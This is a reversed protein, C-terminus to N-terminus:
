LVSTMAGTLGRVLESGNAYALSFSSSAMWDRLCAAPLFFVVVNATIPERKKIETAEEGQEEKWGIFAKSSSM